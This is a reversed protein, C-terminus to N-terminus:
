PLGRPHDAGAAAYNRTCVDCELRNHDCWDEVAMPHVIRLFSVSVSATWGAHSRKVSVHKIDLSKLLARIKANQEVTTLYRIAEGTPAPIAANEISGVSAGPTISKRTTTKTETATTNM